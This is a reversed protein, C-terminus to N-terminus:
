AGARRFAFAEGALWPRLLDLARSTQLAATGGERQTITLAGATFSSIDGASQVQEGQELMLLAVALAFVEPCDKEPAAGPRLRARLAAECAPLLAAQLGPEMGGNASLLQEVLAKMAETM